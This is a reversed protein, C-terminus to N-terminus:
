ILMTQYLRRLSMLSLNLLMIVPWILLLRLEKKEQMRVHLKVLEKDTILYGELYLYDYGTFLNSKIDKKNLELAAGLHTAFTRESDPTVLAM